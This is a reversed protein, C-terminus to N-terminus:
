SGNQNVATKFPFQFLGAGPVVGAVEPALIVGDEAALWTVKSLVLTFKAVTVGAAAVVEGWVM